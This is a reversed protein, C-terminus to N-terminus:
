LQGRAKKLQRQKLWSEKSYGWKAAEVPDFGELDESELTRTSTASGSAMTQQRELRAKDPSSQYRLKANQLAYDRPIGSEVDKTFQEDGYVEVDKANQLQWLQQQLEAKTVVQPEDTKAEAKPGEEGAMVRLRAVEAQLEKKSLNSQDMGTRAASHKEELEKFLPHAKVADESIESTAPPAKPAPQGSANDDVTPM